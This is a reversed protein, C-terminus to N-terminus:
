EKETYDDGLIQTSIQALRGSEKLQRLAGDVDRQLTTDAKRYLWYTSSSQLPTELTKLFDKGDKTFAKNYSRVDRKTLFTADWSKERLGTIVVEGGASEITVVNIPNESHLANFQDIYYLTNAGVSVEVKKGQLDELTKIDDRGILVVPYTVYTTYSEKGFLYKREREPNTEYQHAALDIKGAELAVLVNSFTSTQFKFEYQPLLEDVAKLVEYEYGALKGEKDLYCYPEYANGTGVIITKVGGEKSDKGGCGALALAVTSTIALKMLSNKITM